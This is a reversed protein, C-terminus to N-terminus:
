LEWIVMERLMILATWGNNGRININAGQEVLLKMTELYGNRSSNILAAAM